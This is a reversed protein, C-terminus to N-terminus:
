RVAEKPAVKLLSEMSRRAKEMGLGELVENLGFLIAVLTAEKWEGIAVAGVLAITMLTDITFRLAILNRFGRLFTSYGSLAIAVIFLGIQATESLRSEATFAA